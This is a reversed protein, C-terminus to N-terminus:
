KEHINMKDRLPAFAITNAHEDFNRFVFFRVLTPSIRNFFKTSVIPISGVVKQMGHLREVM